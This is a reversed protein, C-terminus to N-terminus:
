QKRQRALAKVTFVDGDRSYRDVDFVESDVTWLDHSAPYADLGFAAEYDKALVALESWLGGRAILAGDRQPDLGRRGILPMVKTSGGSVISVKGSDGAAAKVFFPDTFFKGSNFPQPM